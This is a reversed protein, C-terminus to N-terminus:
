QRLAQIGAALGEPYGFVSSGAVLVEAGAAIAQPATTANIGGDVELHINRGSADIAKRLYEVKPMQDAMFSQGGFGPEVTMVLFMEVEDFYPMLSEVPTGPRLTIGASCGSAHIRSIVEHLDGDSEVHITIHDAGAKVFTDLYKGPDTIMLHVDFPKDSYKRIAKVVAPGFSINPVFHGDMIDVHIIDAGAESVEALHQGFRAYDASLISPAIRVQGRPFESLPLRKRDTM